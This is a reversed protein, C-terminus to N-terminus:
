AITAFAAQWVKVAQVTAAVDHVRLVHAGREIALTAAAISPVL